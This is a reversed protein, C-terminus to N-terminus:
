IGTITFITPNKGKLSPIESILGAIALTTSKKRSSIFIVHDDRAGTPKIAIEVEIKPAHFNILGFFHDSINKEEKIQYESTVPTLSPPLFRRLTKDISVTQLIEPITPHLQQYLQSTRKTVESKSAFSM